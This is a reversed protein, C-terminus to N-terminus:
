FTKSTGSAYKYGASVFGHRRGHYYCWHDFRGVLHANPLTFDIKVM